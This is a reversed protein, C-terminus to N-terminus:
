LAVNALRKRLRSLVAHGDAVRGAQIDDIGKQLETKLWAERLAELELYETASVIVAVPKGNKQIAVPAHQAKLLVEGFERKADTANLTEM